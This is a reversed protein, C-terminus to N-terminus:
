FRHNKRGLEHPEVFNRYSEDGVVSYWGGMIITNTDGKGHEELIEKIADYLKVVEYHEYELTAMYVEMFLINILEAQLKVAIKRDNYGIKKVISRM